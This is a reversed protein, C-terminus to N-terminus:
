AHQDMNHQDINHQAFAGASGGAKLEILELRYKGARSYLEYPGVIYFKNDYTNFFCDIPKALIGSGPSSLFGRERASFEAVIRNTQTTHQEALTSLYLISLRTAEQINKRGWTEHFFKLPSLYHSYFSYYDNPSLIEGTVQDVPLTGFFLEEEMIEPNDQNALYNLTQSEELEVGNPLYDLEVNDIIYAENEILQDGDTIIDIITNTRLRKELKWSKNNDNVDYNLPVIEGENGQILEYYELFKQGAIFNVTDTKYGLNINTTDIDEIPDSVEDYETDVVSYAFLTVILNESVIETNVPLSATLEVTDFDGSPPQYFRMIHKSASWAGSETLYNDGLRVIARIILFPIASDIRDFGYDFKFRIQDGPGYRLKGTSSTLSPNRGGGDYQNFGSIKASVGKSTKARTLTTTTGNLYFNWNAFLQTGSGADEFDWNPILSERLAFESTLKITGYAPMLDFNGTGRVQAIRNPSYPCDWLKLPSYTDTGQYEGKNNFIHYTFDSGRKDHRVIRWAGDQQVLIAGFPKLLKEITEYFNYGRDTISDYYAWTQALTSLNSNMGQSYVELSVHIDLGLGTQDLYQSIIKILPLLGKNDIESSNRNKLFALGDTFQITTIYKSQGNEYQENFVSPVIYGRWIEIDNEYFKCRVRKHQETFLPLFQQDYDNVLDIVFRSPQIVYKYFSDKNQSRAIVRGEGGLCVEETAGEYGLVEISCKYYAMGSLSDYECTFREGYTLLRDVTATAESICGESDKARIQYDGAILNTFVNSSQYAGGNISYELGTFQSTANVTISGNGSGDDNTSDFSNILIDCLIPLDPDGGTDEKCSPHNFDIIKEGYPFSTLYPDTLQFQVLDDTDCFQYNQDVRVAKQITPGSAEPSGNREVEIQDTSDNYYVDIVDGTAWPAADQLLTIKFILNQAM